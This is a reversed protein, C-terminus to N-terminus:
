PTTTTTPLKMNGSAFRQAFNEILKNQYYLREDLRALLEVTKRDNEQTKEDFAELKAIQTAHQAVTAAQQSVGVILGGVASVITFIVAVPIGKDIYWGTKAPVEPSNAM